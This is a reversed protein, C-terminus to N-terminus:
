EGFLPNIEESLEDYDSDELEVCDNNIYVATVKHNANVEVSCEVDLCIGAITLQAPLQIKM